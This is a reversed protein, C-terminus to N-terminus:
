KESIKLNPFNKMNKEKGEKEKEEGKKKRREKRVNLVCVVSLEHATGGGLGRGRGRKGNWRENGEGALEGHAVWPAKLGAM